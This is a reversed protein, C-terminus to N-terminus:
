FAQKYTQLTYINYIILM